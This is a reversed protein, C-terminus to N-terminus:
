PFILTPASPVVTSRRRVNIVRPGDSHKRTTALMGISAEALFIGQEIAGSRGSEKTLAHRAMGYVLRSEVGAPLDVTSQSLATLYPLPAAFRVKYSATDRPYLEITLTDGSGTCFWERAQASTPTSPIWLSHTGSRAQNNALPRVHTGMDQGVDLVARAQITTTPGTFATVTLAPQIVSMRVLRWYLETLEWNLFRLWRDDAIWGADDEHDDDILTKALNVLDSALHLM